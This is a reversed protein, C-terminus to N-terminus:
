EVAVSGPRHRTGAECLSSADTPAGAGSATALFEGCASVASSAALHKLNIAANIDRHHWTGCEECVWRRIRLPLHKTKAGCVSCLRSSPYWRDVVVARAGVQPAKYEVQRRFEFFGADLVAKAMHHNHTMGRVNLDEIAILAYRDVLHRTFRHLWDCRVSGARAYIRSVQRRAKARNKSGVQKRALRQQARRLCREAKRYPRPAEVIRGDSMAFGRTGVDIGVATAERTPCRADPLECVISVFWRDVHRSITVSLTKAEAWRLRERLRVWGLMPVWLRLGDIAYQGPSLRFSDQRGKRHFTPHRKKGGYFDAFARGLDIIAEQPACKTVQSMWPYVDVKMANLERRLRYQDPKPADPDCQRMAYMENWWALAWNYAFRATGAAKAMYTAQVNILDLAIKHARRM